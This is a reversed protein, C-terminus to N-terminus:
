SIVKELLNNTVNSAELANDLLTINANGEFMHASLYRRFHRAGPTGTFYGLLHKIMHKMAVQKDLQELMYSRYKELIDLRSPLPTSFIDHDLRALLYPDSYIARGLMLGDTLQKLKLCEEVTKIGGNLIFTAEPLEDKIRYIYNYKLPPIDRNEKPTLGKLIAKRAHVVFTRCGVDYLKLVFRKFFSYDESEDIGIRSKVTVPIDVASSMAQYCDAVLEPKAMLCAGIGGVQVRDSPCGCNINVEQYGAEEVLIAAEALEKPNSGGLQFGCPADENHALFKEKEGYLLAGTVIMESYLISNTSLLRLLFRFHRDTCGMM